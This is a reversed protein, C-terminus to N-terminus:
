KIDLKDIMYELMSANIFINIIAYILTITLM